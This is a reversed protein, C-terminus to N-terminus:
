GSASPMSVRRHHDSDSMVVAWWWPTRKEGRARGVRRDDSSVTPGGVVGTLTPRHTAGLVLRKPVYLRSAGWRWDVFISQQSSPASVVSTPYPTAHHRSPSRSHLALQKPVGNVGSTM